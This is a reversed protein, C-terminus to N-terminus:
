FFTIEIISIHNTYKNSVMDMFKKLVFMTDGLRIDDNKTGFCLEFELM